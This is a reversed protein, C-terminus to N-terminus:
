KIRTYTDNGQYAEDVDGYKAVYQQLEETSATIVYSGDFRVEHRIRIQKKDILKRLYSEAFQGITITNGDSGTTLRYFSHMPVFNTKYFAAYNKQAASEAPFYDLYSHKGIKVLFAYYKSLEEGTERNTVTLVYAKDALKQIGEPLNAFQQADGRKFTYTETENKQWSGVLGPDFVLDKETFLPHLASLCGSLVLMAVLGTAILLKKM